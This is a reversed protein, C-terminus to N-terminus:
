VPPWPISFEDCVRQWTAAGLVGAAIEQQESASRHPLSLALRNPQLYQEISRTWKEPVTMPDDAFGEVLLLSLVVRGKAVECAGDMHRILQPRYQMWGTHNTPYTETRKGEVVLVFTDTELFVDPSSNGELIIWKKPVPKGVPLQRM